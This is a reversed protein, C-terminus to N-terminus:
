LAFYGYHRLISVVNYLTIFCIKERERERERERELKKSTSDSAYLTVTFYFETFNNFIRVYSM